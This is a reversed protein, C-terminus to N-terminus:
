YVGKKYELLGLERLKEDTPLGTRRDWGMIEYFDELMEDLRVVNGKSPGEPMPEELFRSPLTDMEKKWGERINFLKEINYIREAALMLDEVTIDWGTVASVMVAIDEPPIIGRGFSCMTVSDYIAYRLAWKRMVVGKGKTEFRDTERKSIEAYYMSNMNHCAGRNATAFALGFGQLGRPDYAPFELRKVHPAFFEGGVRKSLEKVGDALESGFGQRRAIMHILQMASDADGFRLEIGGTNEETILGREFCEMAFGITAGTSIGDLGYDNCLGNMLIIAEVNSIGLNSGLMTLCEYEPGGTFVKYKGEKVEHFKKCRVACGFCGSSKVEYKKLMEHSILEAGEFVGTQFDRTPLFGLENHLLLGEPTGYTSLGKLRERIQGVIEVAWKRTEEESYPHYGRWGKVAIAKLKKSGMVAGVGGRGASNVLSTMICAYKVLKEGAPGICAVSVDKGHREKLISDIESTSKGWLEKANLLEAGNEGLFLYVPEESSGTFSIADYGARKLKAPFDGGVMSRDYFGTEPSKTVVAMRSTFSIPSGTLPGVAFILLNEPGLPDTGKPLNEFLLKSALGRGGIWKRYDEEELGREEIKGHSLDVWLIKGAIGHIEKDDVM